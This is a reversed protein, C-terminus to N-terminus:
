QVGIVAFFADKAAFNGDFLVPSGWSRWSQGDSKAWMTVREIYDAFEIYLGFLHAYMASQRASQEPTMPIAPAAESGFTIDLETVALTAGTRIFRQIAAQVLGLDTNHNFHSQMGIGEILLRGDYEPHSRWQENLEEVMQAIAERKAPVEENYDNYFLRAHPDYRRAFVFADFIYDAGSEGASEDAGNAYALYWHSVAAPNSSDRRLHNRWDGSFSDDDRFVENVVDWSFIRGSYRGAYERIFSEMNARAEARTLVTGDPNRNLWPASQGHWVLTHGIMAINNAAAWDVILDSQSFDFVGPAPAIYAPKMANEATVANYHHLFMALTEPNNFDHPSIINGFMFYDAFREYLSQLNLDWQPTLHAEGVQEIKIFDMAWVEVENIDFIFDLTSIPMNAEIDFSMIGSIFRYDDMDNNIIEGQWYGNIEEVGNVILVPASLYDSEDLLILHLADISIRYFRGAPLEDDLTLRWRGNHLITLNDNHNTLITHLLIEIDPDPVVSINGGSANFFGTGNSFDSRFIETGERTVVFNRMFFLIDLHDNIGGSANGLKVFQIQDFPLSGELDSLDLVGRFSYWGRNGPNFVPTLIIHRWISNTQVMLGVQRSPTYFDVFFEYVGGTQLNLWRADIVAGNWQVGGTAEIRLVLENEDMLALTQSTDEADASYDHMEESEVQLGNASLGPSVPEEYNNSNFIMILIGVLIFASLIAATIVHIKKM